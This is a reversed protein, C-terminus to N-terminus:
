CHGTHQVSERAVHAYCSNTYTVGNCGCVRAVTNSCTAPIPRCTGSAACMGPPTQCYEMLSCDSNTKCVGGDGSPGDGAADLTADAADEGGDDGTTGDDASSGDADPTVDAGESADGGSHFADSAGDGGGTDAGNAADTAADGTAEGDTGGIACAVLTVATAVSCVHWRLRM